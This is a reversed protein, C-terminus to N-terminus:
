LTRSSIRGGPLYSIIYLCTNYYGADTKEFDFTSQIGEFRQPYCPNFAGDNARLNKIVFRATDYGLLAQSPVSEIIETGYWRKFTGELMRADFGSFNDLFRSYVTAETKHLADLADGRFATWDPYGFLSIRAPEIQETAAEDSNEGGASLRDRFSKFVYVFKNFEALSGSSPVAVYRQGNDVPLKELDATLLNNEYDIRLPEVGANRYREALYETFAEKENKGNTNRLIVPTYGEFDAMMADVALKYMDKQPINAQLVMPNSAYLSDHVVFVNLVFSRTQDAGAAITELATQNDPSVIVASEQVAKEQMIEAIPRSETDYVYVEVEGPRAALTDAGLLFGKYFDLALKNRRSPEAAELGFPLLLSVAPRKAIEVVTDTLAVEEVEVLVEPEAVAEIFEDVPFYLMMGRKVGDAVSPNHRVIDQRSIGLKKSIGYVSEKNRVEYYYVKKGHVTKIPLDLATAGIALLLAGLSLIFRRLFLKM